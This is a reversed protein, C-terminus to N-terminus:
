LWSVQCAYPWLIPSPEATTRKMTDQRPGAGQEFSRRGLLHASPGSHALTFQQACKSWCNGQHMQSPRCALYLWWVQCACPWLILSPEPTTRKMTDQRPNAGREFSRRGLPGFHIAACVQVLLQRPGDPEAQLCALAGLSPMRM